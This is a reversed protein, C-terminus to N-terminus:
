FEFSEHDVSGDLLVDETFSADVLAEVDLFLGEGEGLVFAFHIDEVFDCIAEGRVLDLFHYGM